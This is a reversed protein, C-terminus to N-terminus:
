RQLSRSTKSYNASYKMLNFMPMVVDIDKANDILTNNIESLCNTFPAYNKFMVGKNREDLQKANGPAGEGTITTTGSVVIYADNYDCLNSPIM